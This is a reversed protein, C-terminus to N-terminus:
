PDYAEKEHQNARKVRACRCLLRGRYPGHMQFAHIHMLQKALAQRREPCPSSVAQGTALGFDSCSSIFLFAVTVHPADSNNSHNKRHQYGCFHQELVLDRSTCHMPAIANSIFSFFNITRCGKHRRKSRGALSSATAGGRSPGPPSM